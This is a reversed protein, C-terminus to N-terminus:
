NSTKKDGLAAAATSEKPPESIKQQDDISFLMYKTFTHRRHFRHGRFIAYYEASQPLWLVVKRSKFPVPGYEMVLHETTLRLDPRPERLDTELRLVQFTNPDIWARGKLAIPYVHGGMRYQRIRSEKDKKQSFYVQWAFGTNVRGLGECKMDFDTILWPHFILVISPLGTSAMQDPFMDNGTSGNRYEQVDLFEGFKNKIERISALYNFSLNEVHDAYGANNMNEHLLVETATYRDVLSPLEEVHASTKKLVDDLSCAVGPEVSAVADDVNPPLWHLAAATLPLSVDPDDNVLGANGYSATVGGVTAQAPASPSHQLREILKEVAQAQQEAPKTALYDKLAAIAQENQREAALAQGLILLSSSAQGKGLEMAREAHTVAEAYSNQRLLATALLTHARWSNPAVEVAKDLYRRAGTVDDQRLRVDGSALLSSIHRPEAQLAEDWYKYATAFDNKKEYVMGLMYSIDPHNPALRHAADLHKIAEDLKKAQLADMGKTAERQAKPALVMGSPATYHTGDGDEPKLTVVLLQQGHDASITAEAQTKAYGSAEVNIVYQGRNLPTFMATSGFTTKSTILQGALNSVSVLALTELTSGNPTRIQVELSSTDRPELKSSSYFGPASGGPILQAGSTGAGLLCVLTLVYVSWSRCKM